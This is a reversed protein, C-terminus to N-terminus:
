HSSLPALYCSSSHGITEIIRGTKQIMGFQWSTIGAVQCADKRTGLSSDSPAVCGVALAPLQECPMEAKQGTNDLTWINASFINFIEYTKRQGSVKSSLSLEEWSNQHFLMKQHAAESCPNFRM